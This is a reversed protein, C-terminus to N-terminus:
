TIQVTDVREVAQEAGGTVRSWLQWKGVALDVPSDGIIPTVAVRTYGKATGTPDGDWSGPIWTTPRAEADAKDTFACEVTYATPDEETDVDFHLKERSERELKVGV